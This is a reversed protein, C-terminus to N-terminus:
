RNYRRSRTFTIYLAGFVGVLCGSIALIFVLKQSRSFVIEKKNEFSAVFIIYTSIILIFVQNLAGSYALSVTIDTIYKMLESDLTFYVIKFLLSPHNLLNSIQESPNAQTGEWQVIGLKSSYLNVLAFLIVGIISFSTKVAIAVKKDKFKDNNIAFILIFLPAYSIKSLTVISFSLLLGILQKKSIKEKSLIVNTLIAITLFAFANTFVDASFSSAQYIAVPLLVLAFLVKKGYKAYRIAIFGIIAYILVNMIRGIYFQWVLSAGFGRATAIGLGSTIYPIPNYIIATTHFYVNEYEGSSSFKELDNLFGNYNRQYTKSDVVNSFQNLFPHIEKPWSIEEGRTQILNGRSVNYSRIFHEKEDYSFFIPIILSNLVGMIIAIVIFVVELKIKVKKVYLYAITVISTILIEFLFRFLNFGIFIETITSVILLLVPLIVYSKLIIKKM